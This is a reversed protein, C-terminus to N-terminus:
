PSRQYISARPTGGSDIPLTLPLLFVCPSSRRSFNVRGPDSPHNGCAHALLVTDIAHQQPTEDPVCAHRTALSPSYCTIALSPSHPRSSLRTACTRRAGHLSPWRYSEIAPQQMCAGCSRVVVHGSDFITSYPPFYIHGSESRM